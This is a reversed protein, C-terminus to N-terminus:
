YATSSCTNCPPPQCGTAAAAPAAATKEAAFSALPALHLSLLNIFYVKIGCRVYCVIYIM